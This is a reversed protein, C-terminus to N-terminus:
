LEKYDPLIDQRCFCVAGIIVSAFLIMLAFALGMWLNLGNDIFFGCRALNAYNGILFPTAAYSSATVYAVCIMFSYAPRVILSLLMELMNLAAVTLFPLIVFAFWTKGASMDEVATTIDAESFLALMPGMPTEMCLSVRQGLCFVAVTAYLLLFCVATCCLNWICKSLWWKVRSGSRLLMQPAITKVDRFPYILTILLPLLVVAMWFVPLRFGGEMTQRSIRQMGKFCYAVYVAWTGSADWFALLEQCQYCLILVFPPILCFKWNRLLGQKIDYRLLKFCKM